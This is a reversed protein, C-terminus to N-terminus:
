GISELPITLTFVSGGGEADSYRLEGGHAAAISKCISLGLGVGKPKTTFFSDFLKGRLSAPVGPGNDSVSIEVEGGKRDIDIRIEGNQQGAEVIADLGNKVLNVM